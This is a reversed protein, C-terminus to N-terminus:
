EDFSELDFESIQNMRNEKMLPESYSSFRLSKSYDRLHHSLHQLQEKTEIDLGVKGEEISQWRKTEMGVRRAMEAQSWGLEMRLSKLKANSNKM